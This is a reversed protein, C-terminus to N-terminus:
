EKYKSKLHAIQKRMMEAVVNTPLVYKTLFILFRYWGSFIRITEGKEIQLWLQEAAYEVTMSKTSKFSSGQSKKAARHSFATAVRGPCSALVRVGHPRTEYDLSLSLQNVFAKTAAYTAFLPFPVFGAASSVNLVIGKQQDSIWMKIAELTLQLVAGANVNLVELQESIPGQFAEGYFGLGANNVVLDPKRELIKAVIVKQGEPQNLDAIVSEAKLEESLTKLVEGNRGTLILAVGKSSLLRAFAEGIGSTAGTVLALKPMM